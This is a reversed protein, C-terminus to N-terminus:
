KKKFLGHIKTQMIIEYEENIFESLELESPILFDEINSTNDEAYRNKKIIILPPKDNMVQERYSTLEGTERLYLIDAPYLIYRNFNKRNSLFM